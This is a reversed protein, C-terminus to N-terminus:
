TNPLNIQLKGGSVNGTAIVGEDSTLIVSAINTSGIDTVTEDISTIPSTQLNDNGNGNGNSNSKLTWRTQLTHDRDVTFMDFDWLAGGSWTWGTFNYNDRIPDTPKIIKGGSKVTQSSVESGGNSDFTITFTEEGDDCSTFVAAVAIVVIVLYNLFNARSMQSKSSAGNKSITDAEMAGGQNAVATGVSKSFKVM